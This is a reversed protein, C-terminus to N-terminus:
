EVKKNVNENFENELKEQIEVIINNKRNYEMDFYHNAFRDNLSFEYEKKTLVRVLKNNIVKASIKINVAKYTTISEYNNNWIGGKYKRINNTAKVVTGHVLLEEKSSSKCYAVIDNKLIYIKSDM